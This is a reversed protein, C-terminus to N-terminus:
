KTASRKGRNGLKRGAPQEGPVQANVATGEQLKDVGTMVVEDGPALGSIIETQDGETVGTTIQRITVKSDPKVVYVYTNQANRQVAATALLTVGSKEQVLLKTNVFQNPFLEDKNNDFEARLKLTGTSQDIQNDIHALRGEALRMKWDHDYADVILSQGARYKQLVPPLQDESITFIVSMPQMQTIVLMGNTDTAHVINGPDVLRLGVLGSVPATITCYDVNVKAADITGQDTKVTGEYQTVLARQTALQQEPVANQEVLTEYRKLDIRANALLAQDRILNGEAQVLAAQYPRPDIQVLLDGEHVMDGEKFHVSMLQGDVRSKITDTYIPTVAGLGTLYVGISGRTARAAVVPLISPGQNRGGAHGKAAKGTATQALRARMQELKPWFSYVGVGALVLVILGVWRHKRRPPPSGVLSEEDPPALAPAAEASRTVPTDMARNMMPLM